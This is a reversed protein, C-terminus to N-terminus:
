LDKLGFEHEFTKINDLFYRKIVEWEWDRGSVLMDPSPEHEADEFFVLSKLIHYYNIDFNRFREKFFYCVEHISYIKLIAYLDIFDKKAGRQSITKIKEAAIDRIDAVHINNWNIVPYILPVNYFLLSIRIGNLEFHITGSEALLVKDSTISSLIADVNFMKSTLFDLDRSRRHGIQIALGTGGALYFDKLSPALINVTEIAQKSLVKEFM